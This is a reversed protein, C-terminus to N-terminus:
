EDVYGLAKLKRELEADFEIPQPSTENLEAGAAVAYARARSLLAEVEPGADPGLPNHELPDRELDFCAPTKAGGYVFCKYHQDRAVYSWGHGKFRNPPSQGYIADREIADVGGRLLTSLNRGDPSQEGDADVLGLITPAVDVLSVPAAVRRGADIEGDWQFFIPIRMVEDHIELHELRGHEGFEDGHDAVIVLLLERPPIITEIHAVFDALDDDLERIEQEYSLLRSNLPPANEADTFLHRYAQGPAYPSHVAYTHAFLFVPRVTQARLWALARGFTAEADGSGTSIEKNEYYYGIGRNFGAHAYLMANETFAASVYGANGLLEGLSEHKRALAQGRTLVRHRAPYLGTFISMHSGLTNSYTTSANDFLVGRRAMATFRPSTERVNGYTSMSKSRLTDLSILVISPGGPASRPVLLTPDAWLPLQPRDDVPDVPTCSFRLQLTRTAFAALDVREDHWGRDTAVRAPDLVREYLVSVGSSDLAEIRMTVPASEIAWAIEETAVGFDLVMEPEITIPSTTTTRHALDSVRIERLWRSMASPVEATGHGSADLRVSFSKKPGSHIKGKVRRLLADRVHDPLEPTLISWRFAPDAGGVSISCTAEDEVSAGPSCDGRVRRVLARDLVPRSVQGVTARLPAKHEPRSTQPEVLGLVRVALRLPRGSDSDAPEHCGAMGVILPVVLAILVGLSLNV